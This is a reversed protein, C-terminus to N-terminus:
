SSDPPWSHESFALRMVRHEENEERKTGDVQLGLPHLASEM